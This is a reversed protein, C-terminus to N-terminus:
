TFLSSFKGDVFLEADTDRAAKDFLWTWPIQRWWVSKIHYFTQFFRTVNLRHSFWLIQRHKEMLYVCNYIVTKICTLCENQSNKQGFELIDEQNSKWGWRPFWQRINEILGSPWHCIRINLVNIITTCSTASDSPIAPAPLRIGVKLKRLKKFARCVSSQAM